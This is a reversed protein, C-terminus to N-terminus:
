WWLNPGGYQNRSGHQGARGTEGPGVRLPAVLHPCSSLLQSCAASGYELVELTDEPGLGGDGGPQKLNWLLGVRACGGMLEPPEEESSPM